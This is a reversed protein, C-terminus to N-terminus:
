TKAAKKQRTGGGSHLSRKGRTAGGGKKNDRASPEFEFGVKGTKELVLYAKFPRGKKSIFRDLLDTKGTTLIKIVQEM